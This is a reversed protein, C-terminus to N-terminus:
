CPLIAWYLINLDMQSTLVDTKWHSSAYMWCQGETFHVATEKYVEDTYRWCFTKKTRTTQIIHM